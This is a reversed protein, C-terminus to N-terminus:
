IGNLFKMPFIFLNHPSADSSAQHGSIGNKLSIHAIEHDVLIVEKEVLAGARKGQKQRGGDPKSTEAIRMTPVQYIEHPTRM